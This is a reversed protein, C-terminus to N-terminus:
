CYISEVSVNFTTIFSKPTSREIEPDSMFVTDVSEDFLANTTTGAWGPGGPTDVFSAIEFDGHWVKHM